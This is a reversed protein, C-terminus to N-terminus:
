ECECECECECMLVWECMAYMCLRVAHSYISSWLNYISFAIYGALVVAAAIMLESNVEGAKDVVDSVSRGTQFNVQQDAFPESSAFGTGPDADHLPEMYAIVAAEYTRHIREYESDSLDDRNLVSSIRDHYLPLIENWHNAASRSARVATESVDGYVLQTPQKTGSWSLLCTSVPDGLGQGSVDTNGLVCMTTTIADNNTANIGALTTALIEADSMGEYSPRFAYGVGAFLTIRELLNAELVSATGAARAIAEAFDGQLSAPVAEATTPTSDNYFSGGAMIFATVAATAAATQDSPDTALAQLYAEEGADFAAFNAGQYSSTSPLMSFYLAEKVTQTFYRDVCNAEEVFPQYFPLSFFASLSTAVRELFKMNLPLDFGGEAFMDVPTVRTCPFRDLGWTRPLARMTGNVTVTDSMLLGPTAVFAIAGQIIATAARASVDYQAQAAFSVVPQVESVSPLSGGAGVYAARIEDELKSESVSRNNLLLNFATNAAATLGSNSWTTSANAREAEVITTYLSAQSAFFYTM